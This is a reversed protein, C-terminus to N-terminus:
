LPECTRDATEPPRLSECRSSASKGLPGDSTRPSRGAPHATRQAAPARVCADVLLFQAVVYTATVLVQRSTFKAEAAGLGVLLDSSLFLVGGRAARPGMVCATAAMTVLAASCPAVARALLGVRPLLAANVAAWAVLCGAGLLPGHGFTRSPAGGSPLPSTVSSPAWSVPPVPSSPAKM